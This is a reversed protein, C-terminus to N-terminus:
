QSSCSPCHYDSIGPIVTSHRPAHHSILLLVTSLILSPIHPPPAFNFINVAIRTIEGGAEEKVSGQRLRYIPPPAGQVVCPPADNREFARRDATHATRRNQTARASLVRDPSASDPSVPSCARRNTLKYFDAPYYRSPVTSLDLDPVTIMNPQTTM